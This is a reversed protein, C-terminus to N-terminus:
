RQRWWLAALPLWVFVSLFVLKLYIVLTHTECNSKTENHVTVTSSTVQDTQTFPLEEEALWPITIEMDVVAALRRGRLVRRALLGRAARQLVQVAAAAESWASVLQVSSISLIVYNLVLPKSQRM